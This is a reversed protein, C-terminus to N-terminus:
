PKESRGTQQRKRIETRARPENSRVLERLLVTMATEWEWTKEEVAEL